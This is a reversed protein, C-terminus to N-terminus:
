ADEDNNTEKAALDAELEALTAGDCARIPEIGTSKRFRRLAVDVYLPDLEMARAVRQVREAAIILGGSGVFPDLVIGGHNSCDLIADELLDLPKVCPHSALLEDREPSPTNMGAYSWANTRNRGFRGMQINNIHRARGQKFIAVFETQSRYFAGQGGQLKIWTCIAKLEDYVIAGARLLELLHHWSMFIMHLSGDQSVSRMCRMGQTLFRVFQNRNFEGSGQVFDKHKFRGNGSITDAKLNYPVDTLVLQAREEGMLAVYSEPKLADGCYLKHNGLLWLQGLQAVAKMPDVQPVDGDGDGGMDHQTLGLLRDIEAAEFGLGSLDYDPLAQIIDAIEDALMEEDYGSLEALKNATIAYARLQDDSMHEARITPLRNLGLSKAAELVAEGCVIRNQSDILVPQLCGNLLLSARVRQIQTPSHKRYGRVRPAIESTALYEFLLDSM